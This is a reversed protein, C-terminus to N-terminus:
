QWFTILYQSNYQSNTTFDGGSSVTTAMALKHVENMPTMLYDGPVKRHVVNRHVPLGYQCYLPLCIQAILFHSSVVFGVQTRCWTPRNQRYDPMRISCELYPNTELAHALFVDASSDCLLRGLKCTAQMHSTNAVLAQAVHFARSRRGLIM